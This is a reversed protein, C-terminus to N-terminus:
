ESAPPSKWVPRAPQSPAGREGDSSCANVSFVDIM